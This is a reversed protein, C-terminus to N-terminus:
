VLQELAIQLALPHALVPFIRLGTEQKLRDLASNDVPNLMAVTLMNRERGLPYCHLEQALKPNVLHQLGQPLKRPLLTLYPIGLKRALVPLEEDIEDKTSLGQSVTTHKRTAKEPQAAFRFSAEDTAAIFDLITKDQVPYSSHGIAMSQPRLIDRESLNHVRWLLAEWLRNQVIQGGQITAGPLLFYLNHGLLLVSDTKRVLTRLDNLLSQTSKDAYMLRHTNLKDEKEYSLRITVLAIQEIGTSIIREVTLVIDHVTEVQDVTYPSTTLGNIPLAAAENGM